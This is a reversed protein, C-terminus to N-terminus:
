ISPSRWPDGWRADRAARYTAGQRRSVTQRVLAGQDPGSAPTCLYLSVLGRARRPQRLIRAVPAASLTPAPSRAGAVYAFKEDEYSLEADKLRRHGASRNIRISFHCWDRGPIMPCAAQHPCPAIVSLGSALMADRATLVRRYGAPTGPEVVVLLRAAAAARRVLDLQADEALEGLVYSITVLEAPPVPDADIRAPLWTAPLGGAALRQGLSLAAPVQDVVTIGALGPLVLGPFADAAAWAAAGTGGGLDLQSAPAFGPLVIAVQALAARVAAYTAPMRYGAYALADAASALIPEAPVRGSRYREILRDVRDSLDRLPQAAVAADLAERLRAPLDM